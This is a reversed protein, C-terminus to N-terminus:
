NLEQIRKQMADKRSRSPERPQLLELSKREALELAKAPAAAVDPSVGTGEWDGHTIPDIPRGIPVFAVFHDTLRQPDGFYAAGASPAGIVTARKQAQMMYAFSECGSVTGEGILVFVPKDAAYRPGALGAKAYIRETTDGARTYMDILHTGAPLLYSAALPVTDTDGGHCERLDIILGQTDHLLRMVAGLKDATPEPRGFARLNLYGLNFKMRRVEYIGHNQYREDAAEEAALARSPRDGAPAIPPQPVYRVELHKDHVLAVMDQTLTRAFAQATVLKDYDGHQVHGRLAAGIAKAKAAFVYHRDLAASLADVVARRESATIPADERDPPPDARAPAVCGAAGILLTLLPSSLRSTAIATTM